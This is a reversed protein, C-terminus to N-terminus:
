EIPFYLPTCIRKAKLYRNRVVHSRLDLCIQVIDKNDENMQLADYEVYSSLLSLGCLRFVEIYLRRVGIVKYRSM